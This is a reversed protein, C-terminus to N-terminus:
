VGYLYVLFTESKGYLWQESECKFNHNFRESRIFSDAM